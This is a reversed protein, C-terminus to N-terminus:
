WSSGGRDFFKPYHTRMLDFASGTFDGAQAEEGGFRNSLAADGGVAAVAEEIKGAEAEIGLFGAIESLSRTPRAFLGGHSLRAIQHGLDSARVEAQWGLQFDVCWGHWQLAVFELQGSRDMEAMLNRVATRPGRLVHNRMSLCFGKFDRDLLIVRYGTAHLWAVFSLTAKSHLHIIANEGRVARAQELSFQYDNDRAAAYKRVPYGTLRSLCNALFTSGSKPQSLVIYHVASTNERALAETLPRFEPTTLFPM